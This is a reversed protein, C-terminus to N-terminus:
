SAGAEYNVVYDFEGERSDGEVERLMSGEGTLLWGADISRDLQALAQLVSPSPDRADNEYRNLTGVAVGLKAALEQQALGLHRRVQRIRASMEGILDIKSQKEQSMYDTQSLKVGSTSAVRVYSILISM